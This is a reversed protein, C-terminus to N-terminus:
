IVAVASFVTVAVIIDILAQLLKTLVGGTYIIVVSLCVLPVENIKRPQPLISIIRKLVIKGKFNIDTRGCVPPEFIMDGFPFFFYIYSESM